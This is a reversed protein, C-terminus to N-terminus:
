FMHKMSALYSPKMYISHKKLGVLRTVRAALHSAEMYVAGLGRPSLDLLYLCDNENM